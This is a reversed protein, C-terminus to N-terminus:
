CQRFSDADAAYNAGTVRATSANPHGDRPIGRHGDLDDARHQEDHDPAERRDADPRPNGITRAPV